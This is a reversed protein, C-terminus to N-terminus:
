SGRLRGSVTAVLNEFQMLLEPQGKLELLPRLEQRVQALNLGSSSRTLIREVDDWDRPRGAFVKYTILDEASCTFLCIDESIEWNSARAVSREEFPLGGLAIDVDIGTATRALLVRHRLAFERAGSTRAKLQSLLVDVFSEENGFGTLLTLDVDQTFRPSGWRQVALGGIFCFQWRQSACLKQIEQAAAILGGMGKM